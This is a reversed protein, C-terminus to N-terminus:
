TRRRVNLCFLQELDDAVLETPSNGYRFAALLTAHHPAFRQNPLDQILSRLIRSEKRLYSPQQVFGVIFQRGWPGYNVKALECLFFDLSKSVKM